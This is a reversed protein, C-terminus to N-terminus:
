TIPKRPGDGPWEDRGIGNAGRALENVVVGDDSNVVGPGAWSQGCTPPM